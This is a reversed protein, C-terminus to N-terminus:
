VRQLSHAVLQRRYVHEAFAAIPYTLLFYLVSGAAFVELTRFISTNLSLMQFLLEPVGIVSLLACIALWMLPFILFLWPPEFIPVQSLNM